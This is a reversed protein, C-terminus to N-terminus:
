IGHGRRPVSDDIRPPQGNVAQFPTLRRAFRDDEHMPEQVHRIAPTGEGVRELIFEFFREPDNRRVAAAM